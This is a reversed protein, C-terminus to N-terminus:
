GTGAIGQPGRRIGLLYWSKGVGELLDVGAEGM